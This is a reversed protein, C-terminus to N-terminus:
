MIGSRSTPKKLGRLGLSLITYINFYKQCKSNALLLLNSDWYNMPVILIGVESKVEFGNSM